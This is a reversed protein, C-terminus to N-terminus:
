VGLLGAVFAGSWYAVAAVVGGLAFMELGGRWWRTVSITSRLAGVVFMTVLTFVASWALKDPMLSGFTYPLLPVTGAAVFAIFTAIGHRAPYAEEEPLNQAELVSENSRISLYTGVAMSLGDALLNAVGCIMVVSVSLGGGAVGAVVAFTTVLGDSAGYVLERIYHQATQVTGNPEIHRSLRM